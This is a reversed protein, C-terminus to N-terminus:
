NKETGELQKCLEPKKAQEEFFSETYITGPFSCHIHVGLTSKYMLAEM